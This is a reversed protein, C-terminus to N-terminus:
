RFIKPSKVLSIIFESNISSASSTGCSTENISNYGFITSTNLINVFSVIKKFNM